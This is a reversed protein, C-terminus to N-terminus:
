RLGGFKVHVTKRDPFDEFEIVGLRHFSAKKKSVHKMIEDLDEKSFMPGVAQQLGVGPRPNFEVLIPQGEPSLSFDWGIIGMQPLRGHLELAAAKITEWCPIVDPIEDPIKPVDLVYYSYRKRDHLKGTEVDVGTYGGGSCVNDMVSGKGGFRLCSYLIKREGDFKRYTVVRVTNVSTPNYEAMVSHQKVLKQFTYNYRYNQMLKIFQERDTKGSVKMVGHGGFSDVSPKLIMDQGYGVLLDLARDRDCEKGSGDFYVGNSNYVVDETTLIGLQTDPIGLLNKQINKDMYAPVFDYRDLYPYIYHVAMSRTVYHDAKVGSICSYYEADLQSINFGFKKFYPNIKNVYKKWKFDPSMENGMFMLTDYVQFRWSLSLPFWKRLFLVSNLNVKM